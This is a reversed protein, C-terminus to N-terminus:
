RDAELIADTMRLARLNTKVDHVRFVSVGAMRGIVTTAMTGEERETVQLDLANGIMSKRSTGLLVPLGFHRLLHLNKMVLLNQEYTKGFGIGPDLIIRDKKIGAAEAVSLTKELDGRFDPLFNQYSGADHRNHMLCCPVEKKALLAAMEGEDWLLGWIDNIM